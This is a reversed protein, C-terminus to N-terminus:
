RSSAMCPGLFTEIELAWGGGVQGRLPDARMLFMEYPVPGYLDYTCLYSIYTQRRHQPSQRPQPPPPSAVQWRVSRGWRSSWTWGPVSPVYLAKWVHVQLCHQPDPINIGNGSGFKKWGPDRSRLLPNLYKLGFFYNKLERLRFIIQSLRDSGPDPDAVSSISLSATAYTPGGLLYSADAQKM